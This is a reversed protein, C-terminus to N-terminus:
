IWRRVKVRYDLYHSGFARELYQEERRIVYQQIIVLLIPSFIIHWWNGIFCTTGLYVLLLALYMPNRTVRYVSGTQLSLAPKIPVLANKSVYFVRLAGFLFFCALGLCVVGAIKTIPVHLMADNITIKTQIYRALLFTVVYFLPPPIYVGPHDKKNEM